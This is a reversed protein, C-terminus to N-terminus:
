KKKVPTKVAILRISLSQIADLGKPNRHVELIETGQADLGPEDAHDPDVRGPSVRRELTLTEPDGQPVPHM